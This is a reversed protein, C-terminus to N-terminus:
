PCPAWKAGLRMFIRASFGRTVRPRLDLCSHLLGNSGSLILGTSLPHLKVIMFGVSSSLCRIHCTFSLSGKTRTRTHSCQTSLPVQHKPTVRRVNMRRKAQWTAPTRCPHVLTDARSQLPTRMGAGKVHLSISELTSSPQSVLPMHHLLQKMDIFLACHFQSWTLFGRLVPLFWWLHLLTVHRIHLACPCVEVGELIVNFYAHTVLIQNLM